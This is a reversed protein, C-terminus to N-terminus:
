LAKLFRQPIPTDFQLREGTIPHIFHLRYAHLYLDGQSVQNKNGYKRDGLVPCGLSAFHVRIQHKRGTDLRAEVLSNSSGQQLVKYHTVAQKGGNDTPSSSVLYQRSETLWSEVTGQQRPMAGQTVAVYRRDYVLGKWDAEFLQQVRRSKALVMLGSTERDLRHVVHAHCPQHTREFYTDLITKVCPSHASTAMSLLGAAKDIVILHRDEYVIQCDTLAITQRSSPAIEITDGTHLQYDHRTVPKGNVLIRGRQLYQKLSTRSMDKFSSQLQQLLRSEEKVTIM